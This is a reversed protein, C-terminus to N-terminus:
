LPYCLDIIIMSSLGFMFIVGLEEDISELIFLRLLDMLISPSLERNLTVLEFIFNISPFRQDWCLHQNHNQYQKPLVVPHETNFM